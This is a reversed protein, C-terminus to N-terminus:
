KVRVAKPITSRDQISYLKGPDFNGIMEPSAFVAHEYLSLKAPYNVGEPTERGICVYHLNYATIAPSLSQKIAKTTECRSIVDDIITITSGPTLRLLQEQQWPTVGIIKPTGTIPVYRVKSEPLWTPAIRDYIERYHLKEPLTAASDPDKIASLCIGKVKSKNLLNYRFVAEEMCPM